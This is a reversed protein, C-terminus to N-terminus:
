VAEELHKSIDAETPINSKYDGMERRVLLAFLAPFISIM